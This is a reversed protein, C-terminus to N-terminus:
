GEVVRNSMSYTCVPVSECEEAEFRYSENQRHEIVHVQRANKRAAGRSDQFAVTSSLAQSPFGDDDPTRPSPSMNESNSTDSDSYISSAEDADSHETCDSKLDVDNSSVGCSDDQYMSLIHLDQYSKYHLRRRLRKESHSIETAGSPDHQLPTADDLRASNALDKAYATARAYSRINGISPGSPRLSGRQLRSRPLAQQDVASVSRPLVLVRQGYWKQPRLHSAPTSNGDNASMTDLQTFAFGCGTSEDPSCSTSAPTSCSIVRPAEWFKTSMESLSLAFRSTSSAFSLHNSPLELETYTQEVFASSLRSSMSERLMDTESVFVM